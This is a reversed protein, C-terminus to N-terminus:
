PPGGAAAIAGFVVPLLTRTNATLSARATGSSTADKLWPLHASGAAAAGGARAPSAAQGAAAKKKTAHKGSEISRGAAADEPSVDEPTIKLITSQCPQLIISAEVVRQVLDDHSGGTTKAGVAKCLKRLEAMNDACIQCPPSNMLYTFLLILCAAHPLLM